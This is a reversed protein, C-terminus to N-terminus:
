SIVTGRNRHVSERASGAAERPAHIARCRSGSPLTSANQRVSSLIRRECKVSPEPSTGVSHDFANAQLSGGRCNVTWDLHSHRRSRAPTNHGQAKKWSAQQQEHSGM